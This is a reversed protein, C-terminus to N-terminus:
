FIPIVSSARPHKRLINKIKEFEDEDVLNHLKNDFFIKSYIAYRSMAIKKYTDPVNVDYNECFRKGSGVCEFHICKEGINGYVTNKNGYEDTGGFIESPIYFALGGNEIIHFSIPDFFDIIPRKCLDAGVCMQMLQDYDFCKIKDFSFACLFTQVVDNRNRVDNRGHKNNRYCRYPGILDYKENIKTYIYDICNDFFIVDSDFHIIYKSNSELIANAFISATGLHGNYYMDTTEKNVYHFINNSHYEIQKSDKETCYINVKEDHFKHFTMLCQNLIEGCGVAETFIYTDKM